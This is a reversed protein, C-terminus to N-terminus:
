EKIEREKERDRKRETHFLTDTYIVYVYAAECIFYNLKKYFQSQKLINCPNSLLEWIALNELIKSYPFLM